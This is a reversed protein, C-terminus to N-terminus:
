TAIRMSGATIPTIVTGNNNKVKFADPQWVEDAAMPAATRIKPAHQCLLFLLSHHHTEIASMRSPISFPNIVWDRKIRRSEGNTKKVANVANDNVQKVLLCSCPGCCAKVPSHHNQSAAVPRHKPAVNLTFHTPKNVM